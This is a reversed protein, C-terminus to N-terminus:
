EGFLVKAKANAYEEQTIAGSDLLSKLKELESVINGGNSANTVTDVYKYEHQCNVRMVATIIDRGHDIIEIENWKPFLVEKGKSEAYKRAANNIVATCGAFGDQSSRIFQHESYHGAVIFGNKTEKISYEQNDSGRHVEGVHSRSVSCGVLGLCLILTLFRKM